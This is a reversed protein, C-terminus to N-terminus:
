TLPNKNSTTVLDTQRKQPINETEREFFERTGLESNKIHNPYATTKRMTEFDHM